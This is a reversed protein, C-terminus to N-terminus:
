NTKRVQQRKMELMQLFFSKDKASSEEIIKRFRSRQTKLSNISQAKTIIAVTEYSLGAYFLAILKLNNGQIKPVQVRLRSMIGSCYKNLDNELSEYFTDDNALVSIYDKFQKFVIDKKDKSDAQYYDRSISDINRIRESYHTALLSANERSLQIVNQNNVAM